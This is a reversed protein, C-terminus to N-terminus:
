PWALLLYDVVPDLELAWRHRLRQQPQAHECLRVAVGQWRVESVEEFASTQHFSLSTTPIGNHTRAEHERLRPM